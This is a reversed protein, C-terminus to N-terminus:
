RGSFANLVESQSLFNVGAPAATPLIQPFVNPALISPARGGEAVQAGFQAARARALQNAAARSMFGTGGTAIALPVTVDPGFRATGLGTATAQTLAKPVDRVNPRM